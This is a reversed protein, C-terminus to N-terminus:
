TEYAPLQVTFCSGVGLQSMVAIKGGHSQAIGKAISLGLGSGGAWRSRSQDARWFRDFILNLHEPAIGVGTDQIN